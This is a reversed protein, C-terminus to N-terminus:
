YEDKRKMQFIHIGNVMKEKVLATDLMGNEVAFKLLEAASMSVDLM